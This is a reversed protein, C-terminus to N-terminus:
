KVSIKRTRTKPKVSNYIVNFNEMINKFIAALEYNETEENKKWLITVLSLLENETMKIRSGVSTNVLKLALYSLGRKKDETLSFYRSVDINTVVKNNIKDILQVFSPHNIDVNIAMLERKIIFIETVGKPSIIKGM